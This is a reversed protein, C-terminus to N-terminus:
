FFFSLFLYFSILGPKHTTLDQGKKFDLVLSKALNPDKEELEVAKSVNIEVDQKNKNPKTQNQKTKTFLDM